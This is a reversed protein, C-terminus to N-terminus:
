HWRAAVGTIVESAVTAHGPGTIEGDAELLLGWHESAWVHAGLVAVGGLRAETDDATRAAEERASRLILTPGIGIYPEFARGVHFPRVLLMEFPVEVVERGATGSVAVEVALHHGLSGEIALGGGALMEQGEAEFAMAGVARGAVVAEGGEEEAEHPAEEHLAEEHVAEHAEPLTYVGEGEVPGVAAASACLWGLAFGIDM